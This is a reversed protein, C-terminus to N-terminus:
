PAPGQWLGLATQVLCSSGSCNEDLGQPSEEDPGAFFPRLPKILPRNLDFAFQKLPKTAFEAFKAHNLIMFYITDSVVVWASTPDSFRENITFGPAVHFSRARPIDTVPLSVFILQPM